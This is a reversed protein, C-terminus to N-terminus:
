TGRTMPRLRSSARLLSPLKVTLREYTGLASGPPVTNSCCGAGGARTPAPATTLRTTDSPLRRGAGCTAGLSTSPTRLGASAGAGGATELRRPARCPVAGVTPRLRSTSARLAVVAPEVEFDVTAARLLASRDSVRVLGVFASRIGVGLATASVSSSGFTIPRLEASAVAASASNWTSRMSTTALAAGLPCTSACSGAGPVCTGAPVGIPNCTESPENALAAAAAGCTAGVCVDGVSM